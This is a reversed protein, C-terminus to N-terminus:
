GTRRWGRSLITGLLEAAIRLLPRADSRYYCPCGRLVAHLLKGIPAGFRGSDSEAGPGGRWCPCGREPERERQAQARTPHSTASCSPATGTNSHQTLM